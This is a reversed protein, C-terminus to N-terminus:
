GPGGPGGPGGGGSGPTGVNAGPVRFAVYYYGKSSKAELYLDLSGDITATQITRDLVGTQTLSFPLANWALDAMTPNGYIEYSYGSYAPVSIQYRPNEGTAGAILRGAVVLSGGGPYTPEVPTLRSVYDWTAEVESASTGTIPTYNLLM